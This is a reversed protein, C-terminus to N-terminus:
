VCGTSRRTGLPTCADVGFGVLIRSSPILRSSTIDNAPLILSHLFGSGYLPFPTNILSSVILNFCFFILYTKPRLSRFNPARTNNKKKKTTSPPNTRKPIPNQQIFRYFEAYLSSRWQTSAIFKKMKIMETNSDHFKFCNIQKSSAPSPIKFHQRPTKQM